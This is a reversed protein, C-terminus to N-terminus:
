GEIWFILGLQKELYGFDFVICRDNKLSLLISRITKKAKERQKEM